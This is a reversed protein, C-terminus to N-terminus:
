FARPDLVTGEFLEAVLQAEGGSLYLRTTGPSRPPPGVLGGDVFPDVLGAIARATEPSVANADVYVGDFGDALRAVDLAAHPPCVSLLVDCRRCLERMEGVDTLGVGEAREATARSRGASAWLVTEGRNRLAEGIAAGMEGPHLLGVAMASRASRRATAGSSRRRPCCRLCAGNSASASASPRTAASRSSCTATSSCPRRCSPRRTGSRSTSAARCSLRACTCRTRRSSRSRWRMS